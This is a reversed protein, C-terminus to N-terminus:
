RVVVVPCRTRGTLQLAVSGLLMSRFGGRGRSGVVVLDAVEATDLLVETAGGEVLLDTVVGARRDRAVRVADELVTAADIKAIDRGREFRRATSEYPYHWAHVVVLEADRRDAEEIAWELAATSPKSGDIAAVIRGVSPRVTEPVVAVPCHSLHLVELNVSGLLFSRTPGAGNSGLVVLDADASETVLVEIAGGSEARYDFGLAPHTRVEETVADHLQTTCADRLAVVESPSSIAAGVGYYDVVPPMAYSSIVRVAAGRMEAVDGAWHLAARSAASGDFGVVLRNKM